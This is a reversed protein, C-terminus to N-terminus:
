NIEKLRNYVRNVAMDWTYNNIIHKRLKEAKEKAKSHNEFVYRMHNKTQEISERGFNPFIQGEYFHCLKAMRSLNGNCKSEIFGEPEVLYSNNDNLYDTQATVNSAIIPLGCAASEIIPLCFGEGLSILVFDHCSNYLKPMDKESLPKTYLSVHPFKDESKNINSKINQFDDIIRQVGEEEPCEVARSALVLSVDDESSFEELYARLLIDYGKRPSWRFVSVFKFEKTNGLKLTENNPKYRNTDVGLPMVFSPVTLGSNQIVKQSYKSAVWVEDCLNLKGIYDKHAKESTEIMTYLIRKGVHNIYNLPVTVGFVKPANQSIENNELIKLEDQTAKNVHVAFVEPELKIKVNRDSLGFVMTRNLRAYGGFDYVQGNWHCEMIDDIHITEPEKVKIITKEQEENKKREEEPNEILKTEAAYKGKDSYGTVNVTKDEKDEFEPIKIFETKKKEPDKKPFRPAIIRETALEYATKLPM